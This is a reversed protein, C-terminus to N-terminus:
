VYSVMEEQSRRVKKLQAMIDEESRYGVPLLLTSHMAEKDLGLLEDVKKPDFGEMPCSDIQELACVTLLNGMILYAQNRAWQQVEIQAKTSFESELFERFPQLVEEPTGRQQHVM